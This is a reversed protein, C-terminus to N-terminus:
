LDVTLRKSDKGKEMDIHYRGEPLDKLNVTHSGDPNATVPVDKGENSTCTVSVGAKVKLTLSCSDNNYTVSTSEEISPEMLDEALLVSEIVGEDTNGRVMEWQGTINNYFQAIMYDGPKISAIRITISRSTIYGVELYFANEWLVQKVQDDSTMQVIRLSGDYTIGGFNGFYGSEITYTQGAEFEIEESVLGKCEDEGTVYYRILEVEREGEDPKMNIIASQNQNYTGLVNSGIGQEEPNLASLLYYGNAMGGWGWNVHYYDESTYGDLVFMHGGMEDSGTYIVPGNGIEKRILPYWETASYTDRWAVYMSKDYKMYTTLAYPVDVDYIGTSEPSYDAKTAAGIDAILSAVLSKNVISWSGQAGDSLPMNAWDYEFGLYRSDVQIGYTATQYPSTSGVGKDPWKRYRMAIAIATPGCGTVCRQGGYTPCANYYPEGQNWLATEYRIVDQGVDASASRVPVGAQRLDLIQSRMTNLWWRLNSPMDGSEFNFSHSYGLVPLSSDDGSVIVFGPGSENNFVYYAPDGSASRASSRGGDYVMRLDVVSAKTQVTSVMFDYAIERAQEESRRAADAFLPLLLFIHLLFFKYRQM